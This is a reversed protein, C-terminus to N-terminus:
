MFKLGLVGGLPLALAGATSALVDVLDFEQDILWDKAVALVVAIVAGVGTSWMVAGGASIVCAWVFHNATDQPLMLQAIADHIKQKIM